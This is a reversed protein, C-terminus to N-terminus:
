GASDADINDGGGCVFRRKDDEDHKSRSLHKMKLFIHYYFDYKSHNWSFKGFIYKFIGECYVRKDIEQQIIEEM